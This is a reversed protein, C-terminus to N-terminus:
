RKHPPDCQDPRIHRDPPGFTQRTIQRRATSIVADCEEPFCHSIRMTASSSLTEHALLPDTRSWRLRHGTEVLDLVPDRLFTPWKCERGRGVGATDSTRPDSLEDTAIAPTNLRSLPRVRGEMDHEAARGQDLDGPRPRSPQQGAVDHEERRPRAM